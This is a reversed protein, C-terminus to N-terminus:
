IRLCRHLYQCQASYPTSEVSPPLHQETLMLGTLPLPVNCNPKCWPCLWLQSKTFSILCIWNLIDVIELFMQVFSLSSNILLCPLPGQSWGLILSFTGSCFVAVLILKVKRFSTLHHSIQARLISQRRRQSSEKNYQSWRGGASSSLGSSRTWGLTGPYSLILHSSLSLSAELKASPLHEDREWQLSHILWGRSLSVLLANHPSLKLCIQQRLSPKVWVAASM